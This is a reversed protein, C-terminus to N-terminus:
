LGTMFVRKLIEQIFSEIDFVNKLRTAAEEQHFILTVICTNFSCEAKKPFDALKVIGYFTSDM